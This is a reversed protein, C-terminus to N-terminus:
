IKGKKQILIEAVAVLKPVGVGYMADLEPNKCVSGSGVHVM